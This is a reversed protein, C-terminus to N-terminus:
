ERLYKILAEIALLVLVLILLGFPWGVGVGFGMGYGIDNWNTNGQKLATAARQEANDAIAAVNPLM